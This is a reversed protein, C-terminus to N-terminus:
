RRLFNYDPKEDFKLDRCYKMFEVFEIPVHDESEGEASHSVRQSGSQTNEIKM